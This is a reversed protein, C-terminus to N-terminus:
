PTGVRGRATLATDLARCTADWGPLEARRDRARARARDRLDPDTLWRRLAAALADVAPQPAPEGPAAPVLLEPVAAAGLASRVGGVDSALVPIGRALAETVVMGYPEARSPLVLLDAAAYAADLEAGHRAGAFRMRGPPAAARVADAHAPTRGSPGVLTWTWDLDTLGALAAVLVDHGKRPTLSGVSLLGGAGGSGPALPAPAVGPEAVTIRAPDLGHRAVLTSATWPSTAVVGRAARLVAREADDSVPDAGTEDALPLHVLVVLDLRAAHGAVVEPVGCVVLGDALVIGGDPVAALVRDLAARAAPDPAPWGGPLPTWRVPRGSAALGDTIRRDYANGGSPWRPDDADAPVLLHLTGPHRRRM